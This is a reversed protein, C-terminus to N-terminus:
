FRHKTPHTIILRTHHPFPALPNIPLIPPLYTIRIKHTPNIRIPSPLPNPRGKSRILLKLRQLHKEVLEILPMHRFFQHSLIDLGNSGFSVRHVIVFCPNKLIHLFLCRPRLRSIIHEIQIDIPQQILTTIRKQRLPMGLKYLLHAFIPFVVGDQM